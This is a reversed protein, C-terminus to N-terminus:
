SNEIDAFIEDLRNYYRSISPEKFKRGFMLFNVQKLILAKLKPYNAKDVIWTLKLYEFIWNAGTDPLKVNGNLIPVIKNQYLKELTSNKEFFDTANTIVINRLQAYQEEFHYNDEYFYFDMIDFLRLYSNVHEKQTKLDIFSYKEFWKFTIDFRRSLMPYVQIALLNNKLDVTHSSETLSFRCFGDKTKKILCSDRKRLSFDEFVSEKILRNLIKGVVENM